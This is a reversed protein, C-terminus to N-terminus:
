CCKRSVTNSSGRSEKERVTIMEEEEESGRTDESMLAAGGSLWAAISVSLIECWRGCWVILEQRCAYSWVSGCTIHTTMRDMKYRLVSPSTLPSMVLSRPGFQRCENGWGHNPGNCTKRWIQRKGGWREWQTLLRRVGCSCHCSHPRM